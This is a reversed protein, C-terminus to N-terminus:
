GDQHSINSLIVLWMFSVSAVVSIRLEQPILKFNIFHVMPWIFAYNKMASIIEAPKEPTSVYLRRIGELPTRGFVATQEFSYYFPLYILPVHVFLDAAVKKGAVTATQATTFLRNFLTNYIVHQCCGLYAGSFFAFAANRKLCFSRVKEGHTEDNSCEGFELRRREVVLQAFADSASGKILCTVFAVALPRTRSADRYTRLLRRHFGSGM